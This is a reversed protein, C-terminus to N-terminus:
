ADLKAQDWDIQEDSLYLGLTGRHIGMAAAVGCKTLRKGLDLISDMVEIPRRRFLQSSFDRQRVRKKAESGVTRPKRDRRPGDDATAEPPSPAEASRAASSVPGGEALAEALVGVDGLADENRKRNRVRAAQGGLDKDRKLAALAVSLAPDVLRKADAAAKAARALLQAENRSLPM